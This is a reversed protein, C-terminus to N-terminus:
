ASPTSFDPAGLAEDGSRGADLTQLLVVEGGACAVERVIGSLIGGFYFGGTVPSLVAVTPSRAAGWTMRRTDWRATTGTPSRRSVSRVPSDYPGPLRLFGGLVWRPFARRPTM